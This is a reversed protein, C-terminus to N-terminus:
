SEFRTSLSTWVHFPLFYSLCQLQCYLVDCVTKGNVYGCKVKSWELPWPWHWAFKSQPYRAFAWFSHYVHCNGVCLLDCTTKRNSYKCKIKAWDLPWPWPWVYKSQSYWEFSSCQFQWSMPLQIHGKSWCILMKAQCMKFTLTLTVCMEVAFIEWVTVSCVNYNGVCSNENSQIPM